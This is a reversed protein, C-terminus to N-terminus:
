YRGEQRIREAETKVNNLKDTHRYEHKCNYCKVKDWSPITKIVALSRYMSNYAGCKSCTTKGYTLM